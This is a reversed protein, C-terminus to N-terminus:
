AFSDLEVSVALTSLQARPGGPSGVAPAVGSTARGQWAALLDDTELDSPSKAAKRLASVARIRRQKMSAQEDSVSQQQLFTVTKSM